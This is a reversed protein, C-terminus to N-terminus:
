NEKFYDVIMPIAGYRGMLYDKELDSNKRVKYESLNHVTSVGDSDKEFFDIQDRRLLDNTMLSTNQTTFVLQSGFHANNIFAQVLFRQIEPHLSSDFEDIFITQEKQFSLYFLRSIFILANTGSSEFESPLWKKGESTDHCFSVHYYFENISTSLGKNNPLFGLKTKEVKLDCINIDAFSLFSLLFRKYEPETILPDFFPNSSQPELFLFNQNAMEFTFSERFFSLVDNAFPQNWLSLTSVFLRNPLSFKQFQKYKKESENSGYSFSEKSHREFLLIERGKPSAFLYESLIEKQNNSFGYRYKIGKYSFTIDFSSPKKICEDSFFPFFPISSDPTTNASKSVINWMTRLADLLSTKGTANPGYMAVVKNYKQDFVAETSKPNEKFAGYCEFDLTTKNKFSKYNEVSFSLIM